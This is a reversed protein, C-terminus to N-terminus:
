KTANLGAEEPQTILTIYLMITAAKQAGDEEEEEEPPLLKEAPAATEPLILVTFIVILIIEQETSQTDCTQTHSTVQVPCVTIQKETNGGKFCRRGVQLMGTRWEWGEGTDMRRHKAAKM